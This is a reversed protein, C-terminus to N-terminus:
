ILFYYKAIIRSIGDDFRMLFFHLQRKINWNSRLSLKIFSYIIHFFLYLGLYIEQISVIFM